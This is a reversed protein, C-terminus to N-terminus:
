KLRTKNKRTYIARIDRSKIKTLSRIENIKDKKTEVINEAVRFNSCHLVCLDGSGITQLYKHM